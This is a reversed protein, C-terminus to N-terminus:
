TLINIIIKSHFNLTERAAGRDTGSRAGLYPSVPPGSTWMFMHAPTRVSRVGPAPSVPGVSVGGMDWGSKGDQM